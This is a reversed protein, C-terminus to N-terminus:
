SRALRELVDAYTDMAQAMGRELEERSIREPSALREACGVEPAHVCLPCHLRHPCTNCREM